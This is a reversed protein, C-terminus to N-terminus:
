KNIYDREEPSMKLLADIDHELKSQVAIHQKQIDVAKQCLTDFLEYWNDALAYAVESHEKIIKIIM